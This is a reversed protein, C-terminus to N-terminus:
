SEQQCRVILTACSAGRLVKDAVSGHVWRGAGSRGHSSMVILDVGNQTAYDLILVAVTDSAPKYQISIKDYPLQARLNQLYDEYCQLDDTDLYTTRISTWDHSGAYRYIPLVSCLATVATDLMADPLPYKREVRQSTTSAPTRQLEFM